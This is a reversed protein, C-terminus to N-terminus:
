ASIPTQVPCSEVPTRCPARRPEWRRDEKALANALVVLKRMVATIAVKPPKGATILRKYVLKMDPNFRAAVLAPMYLSRRLLARGGRIRSRGKWTGSEQHMPALGALSAVEGSSMQGLEPLEVMLSVATTSSVGPISVLIEFRRRLEPDARVLAQLQEEVAAVQKEIQRLRAACHRRLLPHRLEKQRNLAATRDKMLARRAGFLEALERITEAKPEKSRLDLATGMVRDTKALVGLAEAFRRAHRPNVKALPLGAEHLSHEFVRHYPGTPEFVVLRVSREALWRALRKHGRRDNEFRAIAHDPLSHVDLHEKSVDVGVVGEAM